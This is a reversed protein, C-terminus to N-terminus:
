DFQTFAKVRKAPTPSGEEEKTRQYFDNNPLSPRSHLIYPTRKEVTQSISRKVPSPSFGDSDSRIPSTVQIAGSEKKLQEKRRSTVGRIRNSFSNNKSINELFISEEDEDDQSRPLSGSSITIVPVNKGSSYENASRHKMASQPRAPLGKAERKRVSSSPTAPRSSKQDEIPTTRSRITDKSTSARSPMKLWEGNKINEVGWDALSKVRRTDNKRLSIQLTPSAPMGNQAEEEEEGGEQQDFGRQSDSFQSNWPSKVRMRKRPSRSSPIESSQMHRSTQSLWGRIHHDCSEEDEEDVGYDFLSSPSLSEPSTPLAVAVRRSQMMVIDAGMVSKSSSSSAQDSYSSLQQEQMATLVRDNYERQHSSLIQHSIFM